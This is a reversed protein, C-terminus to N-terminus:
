QEKKYLLNVRQQIINGPLEMDGLISIFGSNNHVTSINKPSDYGSVNPLGKTLKKINELFFVIKNSDINKIHQAETTQVKIITNDWNKYDVEIDRIVDFVSKGAMDLKYCLCKILFTFLSMAAISSQWFKSAEVLVINQDPIDTVYVDGVEAQDMSYITLLWSQNLFIQKSEVNPFHLSLFTKSKYIKNKKGDFTFGYINNVKQHQIADLCDGLFDRCKVPNFMNTYTNKDKRKVFSFKVDLSQGIEAYIQTYKTEVFNM